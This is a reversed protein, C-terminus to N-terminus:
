VLILQSPDYHVKNCVGCTVKLSHMGKGETYTGCPCHFGYYLAEPRNEIYDKFSIYKQYKEPVKVAVNAVAKRAKVQATLDYDKNAFGM